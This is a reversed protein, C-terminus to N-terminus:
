FEALNKECYNKKFDWLYHISRSEAVSIKAAPDTSVIENRRQLLISIPGDKEDMM